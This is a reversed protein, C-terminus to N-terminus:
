KNFIHKVAYLPHYMLMRPGSFRMVEKIKQRYEPKYCHVSCNSCATKNEGFQCFSLRKLAYNKLDECDQCLGQGPHHKKKCYLQIMETVTEMEKQIVPGNNAARSM